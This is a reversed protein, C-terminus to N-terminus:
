ANRLPGRQRRMETLHLRAIAIVERPTGQEADPTARTM